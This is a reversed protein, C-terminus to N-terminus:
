KKPGWTQAVSLAVFQGLLVRGEDTLHLHDPGIVSWGLETVFEGGGVYRAEHRNCVGFALDQAAKALPTTPVDLTPFYGVYVVREAVLRAVRLASDLRAWL